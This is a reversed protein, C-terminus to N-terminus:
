GDWDDGPSRKSCADPPALGDDYFQLPLLQVQAVVEETGDLPLSTREWGGKRWMVLLENQVRGGEGAGLPPRSAHALRGCMCDDHCPEDELALVVSWMGENHLYPISALQQQQCVEQASEPVKQALSRLCCDSAVLCAAYRRSDVFSRQCTPMECSHM